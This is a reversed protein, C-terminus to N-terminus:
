PQVTFSLTGLRGFDAVHRGPRADILGTIAGTIFLQGPEITYGQRLAENVLYLLSAEVSPQVASATGSAIREGDRQLSVELQNLDWQASWPQPAGRLHQWAAVNAAVLDVVTPKCGPQFSVDPVEIVPLVHQFYRRLEASSNLVQRIPAAVVFGIETELKANRFERLAIGATTTREGNQYLVGFVPGDSDFRQQLAVTTLGAKFGVVVPATVPKHRRQQAYADALTADPQQQSLCAFPAAVPASVATDAHAMSWLLLLASCVM